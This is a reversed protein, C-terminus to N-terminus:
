RAEMPENATSNRKRSRRRAGRKTRSRGRPTFRLSIKCDAASAYLDLVIDRKRRAEVVDATDLSFRVREQLHGRHVTFAIWWLRGNRWLHHDPNADNPVPAPVIRSVFSEAHSDTGSDPRVLHDPRIAM